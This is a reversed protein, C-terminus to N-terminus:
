PGGADERNRGARREQRRERIRQRAAADEVPEAAVRGGEGLGNDVQRRAAGRAGERRQQRRLAIAPRLQQRADHREALRVIGFEREGAGGGVIGGELPGLRQGRRDGHELPPQDQGPKNLEPGLRDIPRPQLEGVARREEHGGRGRVRDAEGAIELTEHVPERGLVNRPVLEGLGDLGVVRFIEPQREVEDADGGLVPGLDQGLPACAVRGPAAAGQDMGFRAPEERLSGLPRHEGGSRGTGHRGGGGKEVGDGAQGVAGDDQRAEIGIEVLRAPRRDAPELGLVAIRHVPVRLGHQAPEELLMQAHRAGGHAREARRGVRRRCASAHHRLRQPRGVGGVAPRVHVCADAGVERSAARGPDLEDLRDVLAVFGEGGGDGQALREGLRAARRREDRGIAGEGLADGRLQRAPADRDLIGSAHRQGLRRGADGRAEGGIRRREVEMRDADESEEGM